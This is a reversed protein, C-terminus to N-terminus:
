KVSNNLYLEEANLKFTDYLSRKIVFIESLGKKVCYRRVGDPYEVGFTITESNGSLLEFNIVLSPNEFDVLGSDAANVFDTAELILLKSILPDVIKTDAKTSDIYPPLSVVWSTDKKILKFSRDPYQFEVVAVNGSMISLITRDLWGTGPRNFVYSLPGVCLYVDDSEPKRIYTHTFGRNMKGVVLSNKKEGGQFFSILMGNKDDVEFEHQNEPNQSVISEVQLTDSVDLVNNIVNQDALRPITDQLYWRSNEKYLMVSDIKTIVEIRDVAAIDIDLFNEVKKLSIKREELGSQVLWIIVIVALIILPILLRKM